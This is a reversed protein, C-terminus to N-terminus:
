PSGQHDQCSAPQSCLVDDDGGVESGLAVVLWDYDLTSGNDLQLLPLLLFSICFTSFFFVHGSCPLTCLRWIRGMFCRGEEVKGGQFRRASGKGYVPRTPGLGMLVLGWCFVLFPFELALRVLVRGGSASGGDKLLSEPEAGMVQAQPHTTTNILALPHKTLLKM